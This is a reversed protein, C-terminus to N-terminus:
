PADRGTFARAIELYGLGTMSPLSRDHGQELLGRVEDVFGAVIMLEVRKDARPYLKERNMQLGYVLTRYPPAKKQQLKSIPEGTEIYVELSRVVRRINNVHIKEAAIPDAAVLRQHLAENGQTEAFAELEARLELNPPVRPISWGEIIATIYQGTGGVLLPVKGQQHLRDITQYAKDQYEALSLNYDPDVIDILHHPIQAQQEVTPKATGINMYRYIQRSDAGVIEGNLNKALEIALSTKGVATPGLIVVLPPLKGAM